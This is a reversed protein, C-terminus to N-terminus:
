LFCETLLHRIHPVFFLRTSAPTTEATRPERYESLLEEQRRVVVGSRMRARLAPVVDRALDTGIMATEHPMFRGQIMCIRFTEPHPKCVRLEHSLCLTDAYKMLRPRMRDVAHASFINTNSLIAIRHGRARLGDLAAEVGPLFDVSRAWEHIRCLFHHIKFGHGNVHFHERLVALSHAHTAMEAVSIREFDALQPPKGFTEVYCEAYGRETILTGFLNFVLNRPVGRLEARRLDSLPLEDFIDVGHM